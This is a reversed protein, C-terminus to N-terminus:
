RIVDELQLSWYIVWNLDNTWPQHREGALIYTRSIECIAEDKTRSMTM